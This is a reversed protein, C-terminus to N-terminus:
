FHTDYPIKIGPFVEELMSGLFGDFNVVIVKKNPDNSNTENKLASLGDSLTPYCIKEDSYDDSFTLAGMAAGSGAAFCLGALFGAGTMTAASLPAAAMGLVVAGFGLLSTTGAGVAMHKGLTRYLSPKAKQLNVLTEDLSYEPGILNFKAPDFAKSDKAAFVSLQQGKQAIAYARAEEHNDQFVVIKDFKAPNLVEGNQCFAMSASLSMLNFLIVTKKLVQNM